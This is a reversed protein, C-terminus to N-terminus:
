VLASTTTLRNESRNWIMALLVLVLFPILMVSASPLLPIRRASDLRPHLWLLALSCLSPWALIAAFLSRGIRPLTAWDRVLMLIPLLLLVQNFPTLLPPLVMDAAVFFIALTQIFEPSDADAKRDRWAIILIFAILVASVVGGAWDGLALNLLSPKPFYKRYAIMGDVFYRPWEPLLL